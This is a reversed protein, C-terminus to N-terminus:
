RKEMIPYDLYEMPNDLYSQLEELIEFHETEIYERVADLEKSVLKSLIGAPATIQPVGAHQEPNGLKRHLLTGNILTVLYSREKGGTINLQFEMKAEKSRGADLAIGIYDLMLEDPMNKVTEVIDDSHIKDKNPVIKKVGHRLEKAGNLYANRWTACEAQYGLQELIDAYLYRAKENDPNYFMLKDLAEAARQYRNNKFDEWTKEFVKEESGVYEVFQRAEEEKTQKGLNVPNGDYNGLWASYTGRVGMEISGYYPRVYMKRGLEEPYRVLKAIEEVRYGKSAYHLTQDHILKYASASHLLYEKVADPHQETNRHPWNCSQIVAAAEEGYRVYLDYIYGAWANANRPRAGRVTYINHLLSTLCEGVWLVKYERFYLNLEAPTGIEHTLTFEITIGDITYVTDEEIFFNPNKISSGGPVGMAFGTTVYGLEGPEENGFQFVQKRMNVVNSYTSEKTMREGFRASAYVPIHKKQLLARLGTRANGYLDTIGTGLIVAQIHELIKEGLVREALAIGALASENSSTVDVLIWGSKGRVLTTNVEIGRVQIVDKGVISYVGASFNGHAAMWLSPNVSDPAADAPSEKIFYFKRLDILIEGNEDRILFDEPKELRYLCNGYIQEYEPNDEQLADIGAEELYAHNKEITYENARKKEANFIYDAM